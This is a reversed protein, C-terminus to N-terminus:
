LLGCIIGSPLAAAWGGIIGGVAAGVLAGFVGALLIQRLSWYTRGRIAPTTTTRSDALQDTLHLFKDLLQDLVDMGIASVIEGIKSSVAMIASVIASLGSGAPSGQVSR